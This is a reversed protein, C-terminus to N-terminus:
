PRAFGPAAFGQRRNEAPVSATMASAADQRMPWSSCSRNAHMVPQEFHRQADRQRPGHGVHAEVLRGLHQCHTDVVGRAAAKRDFARGALV